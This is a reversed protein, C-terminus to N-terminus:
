KSDRFTGKFQQDIRITCTELELSQTRDEECKNENPALSLQRTLGMLPAEFYSSNELTMVPTDSVPTQLRRYKIRPAHHLAVGSELNLSRVQTAKKSPTWVPKWVAEGLDLSPPDVRKQKSPRTQEPNQRSQNTDFSLKM